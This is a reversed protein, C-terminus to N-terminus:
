DGLIGDIERLFDQWAPEKEGLIHNRSELTVLRANPITSAILRGQSMPIELEDRAHLVTTPVTVQSALDLVDINNFSELFHEANAPSTSARQLSDFAEVEEMSADPTFLSAFTKRFAPNNQGWGLRVLRQLMEAEEIKAPDSERKIRGQLFGGYIILHNVRSPHRVTYDIAVAAGQSIGLLTFQDVKAAHIVSELDRVWANVSFEDVDWDSLGCGREDYRILRSRKSLETWWHRWVPSAFDFELHSLWNAAKVLPPGSGTEAWALSIEDPTRLFRIKQDPLPPAEGPRPSAFAINPNYRGKPLDFRVPDERGEDAYYDRLKTRLRGAEVRVVSDVSPDFETGRDMVEQAIRSQNLDAGEGNLEAMVLYRLLRTLRPAGAFATSETLIALQMTANERDSASFAPKM